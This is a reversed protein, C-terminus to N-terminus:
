YGRFNSDFIFDSHRPQLINGMMDVAKNIAKHLSLSIVKNNSRNQQNGHAYLNIVDGLSTGTADLIIILGEKCAENIKNVLRKNRSLIYLIQENLNDVNEKIEIVDNGQGENDLLIRLAAPISRVELNPSKKNEYIKICEIGFDAEVGLAYFMCESAYRLISYRIEDLIIKHINAKGQKRIRETIISQLQTHYDARDSGYNAFIPLGSKEAKIRLQKGLEEKIEELKDNFYCHEYQMTENIQLAKHYWYCLRLLVVIEPEKRFIKEKIIKSKKTDTLIDTVDKVFLSLFLLDMPIREAVLTNWGAFIDNITATPHIIRTIDFEWVGFTLINTKNNVAQPVHNIGELTISDNSQNIFSLFCENYSIVNGFERSGDHQFLIM